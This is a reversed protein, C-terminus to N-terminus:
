KNETDVQDGAKSLFEEYLSHNVSDNCKEGVVRTAVDMALETIQSKMERMAKNREEESKRAAEDLLVDSQKRAENVMRSYEDAAKKDADAIIQSAEEKANNISAEYDVKLKLAETEIKKANNIQENINDKRKQIVNNIPKLLFKMLIFYLILINIVTFLLNWDLRLM